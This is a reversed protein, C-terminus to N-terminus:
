LFCGINGTTAMFLPGDVVIVDVLMQKSGAVQKLIGCPSDAIHYFIGFDPGAMQLNPPDRTDDPNNCVTLSIMSDKNREFNGSFILRCFSPNSFTDRFKLDIYKMVFLHYRSVKKLLVPHKEILILTPVIIKM